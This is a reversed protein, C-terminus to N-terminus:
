HVDAQCATIIVRSIFMHCHQLCIETEGFDLIGALTEFFDLFPDFREAIYGSKKGAAATDLPSQEEIGLVFDYILNKLSIM